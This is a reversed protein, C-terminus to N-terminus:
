KKPKLLSGSPFYKRVVGYYAGAMSLQSITSALLSGGIGYLPIFAFNFVLNILAAALTIYIVIKQLNSKYLLYIFPSYFFVPICFIAGIMIMGSSINFHYWQHCIWWLCPMFGVPLLLGAILMKPAIKMVSENSLRYINKLFPSIMFYASAQLYVLFSILVQYVALKHSPLLLATCWLDIRSQLLGSFGIIFFLFSRRLYFFSLRSPEKQVNFILKFYQINLILLRFLESILVALTVHIITLNDYYYIFLAVISWVICELLVAFRFDRKFLIISDFSQNVFRLIIWVVLLMSIVHDKFIFASILLAGLLVPLRSLFVHRWIESIRMPSLSFEKLLYDKNGWGALHNAIGQVLLLAVFQGWLIKSGM